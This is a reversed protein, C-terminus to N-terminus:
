LRACSRMESPVLRLYKVSHSSQTDRDLGSDDGRAVLSDKQFM